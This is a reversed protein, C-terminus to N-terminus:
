AEEEVSPFWLSNAPDHFECQEPDCGTQVCWRCFAHDLFPYAGDMATDVSVASGDAMHLEVLISGGQLRYLKQARIDEFRYAASKKGFSRLFSEDDYFIGFSLYYAALALGMLLVVAGGALLVTSQGVGVLVGLLGIISMFLGFLAVKKQLRVALGSKHQKQGRFLRTFLKDLLFCVGFVLAAVVLYVM